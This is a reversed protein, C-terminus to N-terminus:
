PPADACSPGRPPARRLAAATAPAACSAHTSSALASLGPLMVGRWSKASVEYSSMSRLAIAIPGSDAPRRLAADALGHERRHRRGAPDGARVRVEADRQQQRREGAGRQEAPRQALPDLGFEAREREVVRAGGVLRDARGPRAAEVLRDLVVDAGSGGDPQALRHRGGGVAVRDGGLVRGAVGHREAEPERRQPAREVVPERRAPWPRATGPAARPTGSVSIARLRPRAAASRTDAPAADTRAAPPTRSSAPRAASAANSAESRLSPLASM